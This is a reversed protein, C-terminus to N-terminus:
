WPQLFNQFIVKSSARFNDEMQSIKNDKGEGHNFFDLKSSVSSFYVLIARLKIIKHDNGEGPNFFSLFNKKSSAGRSHGKIQSIEDNNGEGHLYKSFESKLYASSYHSDKHVHPHKLGKHNHIQEPCIMHLTCLTHM